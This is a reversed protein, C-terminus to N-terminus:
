MIHVSARHILTKDIAVRYALYAMSSWFVACQEIMMKAGRKSEIKVEKAQGARGNTNENRPVNMGQIAILFYM